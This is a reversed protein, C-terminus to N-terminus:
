VEKNEYLENLITEPLEINVVTGIARGETSKLDTIEIKGGTTKYLQNLTEIRNAILETGKSDRDNKRERHYERGVGNDVISIILTEKELYVNLLLKARRHDKLPLLGHWIANEIFPQTILTPIYTDYSNIEPAVVIEFEFKNSFRLQELEVYLGIMDLESKLSAASRTSYDLLSRLLLSFKALYLNASDTDNKLILNQIAVLSNSMFHPNVQAKLATLRYENLLREIDEKAQKRQLRRNTLFRYILLILLSGFLFVILKFSITEWFAPAISFRTVIKKNKEGYSDHMPYTVLVYEGPSLNQLHLQAQDLVGKETVPGKLEYHIARKSTGFDLYNFNFFLENQERNLRLHRFNQLTDKSLYISQLYFPPSKTQKFATIDLAILGSKSGFYVKGNYEEISTLEDDIIKRWSKQDEINGFTSIFAGRVTAIIVQREKTFYINKVITSAELKVHTLQNNKDLKYLGNDRTCFWVNGMHDLQIKTLSIGKLRRLYKPYSIGNQEVKCIGNSTSSLIEGNWRQVVWRTKGLLPFFDVKKTAVNYTGISLGFIVVMEDKGHNLLAYSSIRDETYVPRLTGNVSFQYLAKIAAVYFENNIKTIDNIAGIEENLPVRKFLGGEQVFLKGSYTGIFLRGDVEKLLNINEEKRIKEYYSVQHIDRCHYVGYGITSLWMGNQGDFHIDSVVLNEFYSHLLNLKSDLEYLGNKTAVWVNGNPLCEFDLVETSMTRRVRKGSLLKGQVDNCFGFYIGQKSYVCLARGAGCDLGNIANRYFSINKTPGNVAIKGKVIPIEINIAYRDIESLIKKNVFLKFVRAKGPKEKPFGPTFYSDSKIVHTGFLLNVYVNCNQDMFLGLVRMGMQNYYLMIKDLEKSKVLYAKDNHIRYLRGKSNMFYMNGSPSETVAYVAIENVPLNTCVPITKAGTYKVIGYETFFWIYGQKDEFIHYVESSPLGSKVGINEFTLKQGLLQFNFLVFLGVIAARKSFKRTKM